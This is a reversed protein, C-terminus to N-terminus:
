KIQLYIYNLRERTIDPDFRKVAHGQERNKRVMSSTVTPNSPLTLGYAVTGKM